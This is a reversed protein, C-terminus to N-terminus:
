TSNDTGTWQYSIESLLAQYDAISAVGALTLIKTSDNWSVTVRGGDVTGSQAGNIFLKDGPVINGAAASVRITAGSLTASLGDTIVP